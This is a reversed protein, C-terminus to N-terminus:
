RMSWLMHGLEITLAGVLIWYAWFRAAPRLAFRAGIRGGVLSGVSLLCGIRWQINGHLAFLIVSLLSTALLALSKYANAQVLPLRVGLILVLLLFTAGDLVILGLWVGVLFLLATQRIGLRPAEEHLVQLARRVGTFLLTLAVCLGVFIVQRLWSEPFGDALLAGLLSGALTPGVVHWALRWQIVGSRFFTWSASSAAVLVPLRNTDNAFTPSLGLSLLLPLTVASGSSAVTNLFGCLLGAMVAVLTEIM